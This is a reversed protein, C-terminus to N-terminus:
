VRFALIGLIVSVSVQKERETNRQREQSEIKRKREVCTHAAPKALGFVLCVRRGRKVEGARPPLPM